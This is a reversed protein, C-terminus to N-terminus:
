QQDRTQKLYSEELKDILTTKDMKLLYALDSIRALLEELEKRKGDLALETQEAVFSGRGHRTIIIGEHELEQYARKVTIVSVKLAVALERISPLATGASWVDSIVLQKINEMIQLYMPRSDAQSLHFPATM